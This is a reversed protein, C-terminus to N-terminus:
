QKAVPTLTIGGFQTANFNIYNDGYTSATGGNSGSIGTANIQITNGSLVVNCQANIGLSNYLITTNIISVVASSDCQVGYGANNSMNSNEITANSGSISVGLGVNSVDVNKLFGQVASTNGSQGRITLGAGSGPIESILTDSILYTYASGTLSAGTQTFNRIVSKQIEIRGGSNFAIGTAASSLGDLTLGRLTIIDNPGANITIATGGAPASMGATGVGNNLLALPKTITLSGYNAPDHILVDGGATGLVTDHVYQFTRCPAAVSGCGGADTGQGSVWAATASAARASFTTAVLLAAVLGASKFYSNTM